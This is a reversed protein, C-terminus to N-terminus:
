LVSHEDTTMPIPNQPSSTLQSPGWLYSSEEIMQRKEHNIAINM